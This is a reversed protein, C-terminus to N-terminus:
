HHGMGKESPDFQLYLKQCFREFLCGECKPQTPLCHGTTGDGGIWVMPAEIKSPDLPFVSKAFSQLKLDGMSDRGQYFDFHPDIIGLRSAVRYLSRDILVPHESFDIAMARPMLDSIWRTAKRSTKESMHPIVLIMRQVEYAMGRKKDLLSRGIQQLKPVARYFLDRWQEPSFFLTGELSPIEEPAIQPKTLLQFVRETNKLAKETENMQDFRAHALLTLLSHLDDKLENESQRATIWQLFLDPHEQYYREVAIRFEDLWPFSSAEREHMETRESVDNILRSAEEFTSADLHPPEGAIAPSEPTVKGDTAEESEAVITISEGGKKLAAVPLPPSPIPEVSTEVKGPEKSIYGTEAEFPTSPGEEAPISRDNHPHEPNGLPPV